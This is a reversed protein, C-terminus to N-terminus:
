YMAEHFLGIQMFILMANGFSYQYFRSQFRLFAIWDEDSNNTALGSDIRALAEKIKEYNSM